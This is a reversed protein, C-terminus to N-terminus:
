RCCEKVRNLVQLNGRWSSANLYLEKRFKTNLIINQDSKSEKFFYVTIIYYRVYIDTIEDGNLIKQQFNNCEFSRSVSINNARLSMMMRRRLESIDKISTSYSLIWGPALTM